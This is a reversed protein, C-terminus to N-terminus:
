AMLLAEMEALDRERDTLRSETEMVIRQRETLSRELQRLTRELEILKQANATDNLPGRAAAVIENISQRAAAAADLVDNSTKPQVGARRRPLSLKLAADRPKPVPFKIPSYDAM